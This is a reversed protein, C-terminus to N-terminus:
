PMWVQALSSRGTLTRRVASPCHPAMKSPTPPTAATHTLGAESPHEVPTALSTQAASRAAYTAATLSARGRNSGPMSDVTLGAM